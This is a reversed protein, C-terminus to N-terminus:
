TKFRLLARADKAFMLNADSLIKWYADIAFCDLGPIIGRELPELTYLKGASPRRNIQGTFSGNSQRIAIFDFDRRPSDPETEIFFLPVSLQDHITIVTDAVRSQVEQKNWLLVRAYEMEPKENAEVSLEAPNDFLTLSEPQYKRAEDIARDIASKLNNSVIVRHVPGGPNKRLYHRIQRALYLYASPSIWAEPGLVDVAFIGTCDRLQSSVVFEALADMSYRDSGVSGALLEILDSATRDFREREHANAYRDHKLVDMMRKALGPFDVDLSLKPATQQLQECWKAIPVKIRERFDSLDRADSNVHPLKLVNLGSLDSPLEPEGILALATRERGFKMIAMGYECIVNDRPQWRTVDRKIVKDDPTAVLVASDCQGMALELSELYHRGLPFAQPNTWPLVGAGNQRLCEAIEDVPKSAEGSSGIFIRPTPMASM